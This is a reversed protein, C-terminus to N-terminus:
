LTGDELLLTEIDTMLLRPDILGLGYINRINGKRDVLFMRLLHNLRDEDNSRDVVQGFIPLACTQVGTM